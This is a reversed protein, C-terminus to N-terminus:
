YQGPTSPNKWIMIGREFASEDDAYSQIEMLADDTLAELQRQADLRTRVIQMDMFGSTQSGAQMVKRYGEAGSSVDNLRQIENQYALVREAESNNAEIAAYSRNRWGKDSTQGSVGFDIYGPGPTGRYGPYQRDYMERSLNEAFTLAGSDRLRQYIESADTGLDIFVIESGSLPEHDDEYDKKEQEFAKQGDDLEQWSLILSTLKAIGIGGEAALILKGVLSGASAVSPFIFVASLLSAILVRVPRRFRM